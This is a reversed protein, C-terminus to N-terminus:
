DRERNRKSFHDILGKAAFGLAVAGVVAMAGMMIHEFEINEWEEDNSGQEEPQQLMNRLLESDEASVRRRAKGPADASASSRQQLFDRLNRRNLQLPARCTPCSPTTSSARCRQVWDALCSAHGYHHSGGQGNCRMAADSLNLSECCIACDGLEMDAPLTTSQSVRGTAVNGHQAFGDSGIAVPASTPDEASLLGLAAAEVDGQTCQLAQQAQAKSFGMELLKNLSADAAGDSNAGEDTEMSLLTAAAADVDGDNAELARCCDERPVNLAEALYSAADARASAM